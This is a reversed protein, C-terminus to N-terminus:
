NIFPSQSHTVVPPVTWVADSNGCVVTAGEDNIDGNAVLAKRADFITWMSAGSSSAANRQLLMQAWNSRRLIRGRAGATYATYGAELIIATALNAANNM